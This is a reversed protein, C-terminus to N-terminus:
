LRRAVTLDVTAGAELAAGPLPTQDLVTGREVEAPADREDVQGVECGLPALLRQVEPLTLGTLNPAAYVTAPPGLSVLLHVPQGRRLGEGPSPSQAIVDDIAV